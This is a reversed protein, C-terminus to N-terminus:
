YILKSTFDITQNEIVEGDKKLEFNIKKGMSSWEITYRKAYTTGANMSGKTSLVITQKNFGFKVDATNNKWDVDIVEFSPKRRRIVIALGGIILIPLAIKLVKKIEM